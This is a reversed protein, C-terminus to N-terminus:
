MMPCPCPPSPPCLCVRLAKRSKLQSGTIKFPGPQSGRFNGHRTHIQPFLFNPPYLPPFFLPLDKHYKLIDRAKVPGLFSPSKPYRVFQQIISCIERMCEVM